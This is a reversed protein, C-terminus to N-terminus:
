LTYKIVTTKSPWFTSFMAMHM